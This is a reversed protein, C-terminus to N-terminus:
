DSSGLRCTQSRFEDDGVIRVIPRRAPKDAIPFNVEPKGIVCYAANQHAGQSDEVAKGKVRRAM